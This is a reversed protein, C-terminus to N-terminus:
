LWKPKIVKIIIGKDTKLEKDFIEEFKIKAMGINDYISRITGIQKEQDLIETGIINESSVIPLLRTRVQGVHHTRATLEQGIYCGKNFSIGNLFDYNVELPFAEESPIEDIGEPVSALIRKKQYEKSDITQSEEHYIRFGLESDRPDKFIYNVDRSESSVLVNLNNEQIEFKSRIKHKQIHQKLVLIIRKDCEIFYEENKLQYIIVDAIVRGKVNLFLAPIANKEQLNNLNNTTLSQLFNKSDKGSLTFLKRNELQTFYNRIHGPAKTRKLVNKIM